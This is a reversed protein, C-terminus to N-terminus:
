GEERICCFSHASLWLVRPEYIACDVLAVVDVSYTLASSYKLWRALCPLLHSGKAGGSSVAFGYLAALRTSVALGCLGASIRSLM